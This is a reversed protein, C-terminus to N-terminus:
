YLDLDFGKTEDKDWSLSQADFTIYTPNITINLTYNYRDQFTTFIADDSINTRSIFPEEHNGRKITYNITLNCTDPLTQPMVISEIFYKKKDTVTSAPIKAYRASDNAANFKISYTSNAERDYAIWKEGDYRGKNKLSDLSISKITVTADDLKDTKAIAINLKALIHHFQLNVDKRDNGNTNLYDKGNQTKVVDSIMLDLDKGAENVSDKTFGVMIEALHKFESTEDKDQLNQGCLEFDDTSVFKNGEAGVRSDDAVYKYALPAYKPAYAVFDYYAQKDWYREDTYKWNSGHFLNNDDVYDCVTGAVSDTASAEDGFVYITDADDVIYSYKTGYVVFSEHYKELNYNTPAKTPKEAYTGFGIVTPTSSTQIENLVKENTCSALVTAAAAIILISKRM